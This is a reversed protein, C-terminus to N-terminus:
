ALEYRNNIAVAKVLDINELKHEPKNVLSLKKTDLRRDWDYKKNHRIIHTLMTLIYFLPVESILLKHACM